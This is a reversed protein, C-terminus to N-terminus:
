GRIAGRLATEISSADLKAGGVILVSPQVACERAANYVVGGKAEDKLKMLAAGFKKTRAQVGLAAVSSAKKKPYYLKGSVLHTRLSKINSELYDKIIFGNLGSVTLSDLTDLDLGGEIEIARERGISKPPSNKFKAHITDAARDLTEPRSSVRGTVVVTISEKAASNATHAAHMFAEKNPAVGLRRCSESYRTYLAGFRLSRVIENACKRASSLTRDCVVSIMFHGNQVGCSMTTAKNKSATLSNGMVRDRAEEFAAYATASEDFLTGDVLTANGDLASLTWYNVAFPISVVVCASAVAKTPESRFTLNKVSTSYRNFSNKSM